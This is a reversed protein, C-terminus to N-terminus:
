ETPVQLTEILIAQQGITDKQEQMSFVAVSLVSALGFVAVLLMAIIQTEGMPMCTSCVHSPIPAVFAKKKKMTKTKSTQTLHGPLMQKAPM